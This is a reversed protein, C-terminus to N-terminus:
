EEYDEDDEDGEDDQSEDDGYDNYQVDKDYNYFLKDKGLKDCLLEYFTKEDMSLNQLKQTKVLKDLSIITNYQYHKKTRVMTNHKHLIVAVVNKWSQLITVQNGDKDRVSTEFLYENGIRKWDDM